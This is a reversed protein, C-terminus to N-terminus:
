DNTAEKFQFNIVRIHVPNIVANGIIVAHGNSLQSIVKERIKIAEDDSKVTYVTKSYDTCVTIKCM